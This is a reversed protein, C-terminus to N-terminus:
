CHKPPDSGDLERGRNRAAIVAEVIADFMHQNDMVQLAAATTGGKSTVADRLEGASREDQLLLAAAGLITQRALADAIETDLGAQKGGAIMAEALYFVYAPGSGSVATVADMLDEPVETVIGIQSFLEKASAVDEDTASKGRSLGTAGYGISCPLNPMIRVIRSHGIADAIRDTTVGALISFVIETNVFQAVTDFM